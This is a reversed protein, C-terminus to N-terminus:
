NGKYLIIKNEITKVNINLKNKKIYYKLQTASLKAIEPNIFTHSIKDNKSLFRAEYTINVWKSLAKM